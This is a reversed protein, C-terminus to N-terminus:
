EPDIRQGLANFGEPPATFYPSEAEPAPTQRMFGLIGPEPTGVLDTIGYRTADMAHNFQDEPVNLPKETKKDIRWLYNRQEHWVDPSDDTVYIEQDQVTDIGFNVSGQGKVSGTINVGMGKIFDISKPEASDAITLIQTGQEFVAAGVADWSVPPLGEAARIANGLAKNDMGPAYLVQKLIFANNWRYIDVIASPHNTYGFDLTHRVLVADEPIKDIPKWDPYIQGENYGTLGQGYVRFWNIRHKRSEISAVLRPDLAENDKYNLILFDCDVDPKDVIETHAWFENIPNYDVIVIDSTRIELQEFTTYSLRNGENIYLVRRRPGRAKQPDDLAFFEMYANGGFDYISDTKNWARRDFYNHSHMINLFDRMAGKKLNPVTDTVVSISTDAWPRSQALDTLLMMIAVTKGASTGGQIIRLRKQLQAIKHLATTEQFM